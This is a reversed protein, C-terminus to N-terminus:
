QRDQSSPGLSWVTLLESYDEDYQMFQIANGSDFLTHRHTLSIPYKTIMAIPQWIKSSYAQILTKVQTGGWGKSVLTM